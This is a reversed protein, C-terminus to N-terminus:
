KICPPWSSCRCATACDAEAPANGLSGSCRHARTGHQHDGLARVTGVAHAEDTASCTTTTSATWCPVCMTARTLTQQAVALWCSASSPCLHTASMLLLRTLRSSRSVNRCSATDTTWVCAHRHTATLTHQHVICGSSCASSSRSLCQGACQGQLSTLATAALRLLKRCAHWAM